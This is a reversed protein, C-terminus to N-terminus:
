RGKADVLPFWPPQNRCSVCWTGDDGPYRDYLHNCVECRGVKSTQPQYRFDPPMNVPRQKRAM